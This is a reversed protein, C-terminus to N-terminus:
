QLKAGPMDLPNIYEFSQELANQSASEKVVYVKTEGMPPVQHQDISVALVGKGYFQNDALRLPDKSLNTLVSVEGELTAGQYIETVIWRTGAMVTDDRGSQSVSYGMPPREEYMAKILDKLGTVYDNSEEWRAAEATGEGPTRVVITEGPIGKPVLVLSFTGKSSVLFIEQPAPAMGEIYQVFVDKGVVKVDLAKSSTYVRTGDSPTRILNLDKQSISVFTSGGDSLEVPTLADAPRALTQLYVTLAAVAIFFLVRSVPNGMHHNTSRDMRGTRHKVTKM